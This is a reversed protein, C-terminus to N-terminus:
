GMPHNGGVLCKKNLTRAKSVVRALYFPENLENVDDEHVICVVVRDCPDGTTGLTTAFQEVTMIDKNPTTNVRGVSTDGELNYHSM